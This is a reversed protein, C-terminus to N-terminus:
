SVSSSYVRRYLDVRSHYDSDTVPSAVLHELILELNEPSPLPLVPELDPSIRGLFEWARLFTGDYIFSVGVQIQQPGKHTWSVVKRDLDCEFNEGNLLDYFMLVHPIRFPPTNLIGFHAQLVRLESAPLTQDEPLEVLAFLSRLAPIFDAPTALERMKLEPTVQFFHLMGTGCSLWHEGNQVYIRVQNMRDEALEKFKKYSYVPLVDGPASM